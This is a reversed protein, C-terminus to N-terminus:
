IELLDDDWSILVYNDAAELADLIKNQVAELAELAQEETKYTKLTYAWEDVVELKYEGQYLAMPGVVFGEVNLLIRNPTRVIIKM